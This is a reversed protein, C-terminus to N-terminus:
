GEGCYKHTMEVACLIVMDKVNLGSPLFSEPMNVLITGILMWDTFLEHAWVTSLLRFLFAETQTYPVLLCFHSLDMRENQPTDNVELSM